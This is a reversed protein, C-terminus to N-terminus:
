RSGNEEIKYLELFKDQEMKKRRSFYFLAGEYDYALVKDIAEKTLDSKTYFFFHKYEM